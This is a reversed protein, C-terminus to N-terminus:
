LDLKESLNASEGNTVRLERISHHAVRPEDDIVDRQRGENAMREPEVPGTIGEVTQKDGVARGPTYRKTGHVAADARAM